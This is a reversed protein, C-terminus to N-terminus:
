LMVFVDPFESDIFVHGYSDHRWGAWGLRITRYRPDSGTRILSNRRLMYKGGHGYNDGFRVHCINSILVNEELLIKERPDGPDVGLAAVAHGEALGDEAIVKIRNDRFVVNEMNEMPVLWVGRMLCGDGRGYIAVTNNRYTINRQPGKQIRIGNM